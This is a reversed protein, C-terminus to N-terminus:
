RADVRRGSSPFQLSGGRMCLGFASAGAVSGGGSLGVLVKDGLGLLHKEEIFQSVKRIFM